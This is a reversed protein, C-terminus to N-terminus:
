PKICFYGGITSLESLKSTDTTFVSHAGGDLNLVDNLNLSTRDNLESIIEPLESLSPGSLTNSPEYIALFVSERRANVGVLVRRAKDPGTSTLNQEDENYYILPGAQVALRSQTPSSNSVHARGTNDISYYGNFLSNEQSQNLSVSNEVFLGIHKNDTTIFGSNGLYLWSKQQIIEGSTLGDELNSFLNIKQNDRVIVWLVKYGSINIGAEFTPKPTVADDIDILKSPTATPKNGSEPKASKNNIFLYVSVGILLACIILFIKKM